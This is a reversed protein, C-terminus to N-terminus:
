PLVLLVKTGAVLPEGIALPLDELAQDGALEILLHGGVQVDGFARDFQVAGANELFQVDVRHGAERTERHFDADLRPVRGRLFDRYGKRDSAPGGVRTM